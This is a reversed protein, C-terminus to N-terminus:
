KEIGIENIETLEENRKILLFPIGIGIGITITSCLSFPENIVYEPIFPNSNKGIFYIIYLGIGFTIISCFLVTLIDMILKSKEFKNRNSNLLIGFLPISAFILYDLVNLYNIFYYEPINELYYRLNIIEFNFVSFILISIVFIIIKIKKPIKELKIRKNRKLSDNHV